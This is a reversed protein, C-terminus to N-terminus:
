RTALATVLIIAGVLVALLVAGAVTTVVVNRVELGLRRYWTSAGRVAV